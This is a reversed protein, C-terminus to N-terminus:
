TFYTFTVGDGSVTTDLYVDALDDIDVEYSDGANLPTGRRTALAAVVTSGGVVIIGTNDTEATISIKKCPTSTALALATGATTVVKRGDGIGTIDHGVKGIANTGANIGVDNNAGLNVLTGDTSDGRMRDWTTGDFVTNRTIIQLKAATASVAVDDVNDAGTQHPTTSNLIGLVVRIQGKSDSQLHTRQGDAYTPLTTEYKGGVKVPNSTDAGGAAVDGIVAVTPMTLVDIQLDGATDTHLAFINAGDTGMAVTGTPDANADGDSYQTGGGFSTVQNGSADVLEMSLANVSGRTRSHLRRTEADTEGDVALLSRSVGLDAASNQNAM